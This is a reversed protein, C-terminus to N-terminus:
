HAVADEVLFKAVAIHGVHFAVLEDDVEVVGALLLHHVAEDRPHSATRTAFKRQGGRDVDPGPACHRHLPCEHFYPNLAHESSISGSVSTM